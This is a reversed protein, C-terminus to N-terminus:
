QSPHLPKLNSTDKVWVRRVHLIHHARLLALLHCIPNLETNLPNFANMLAHHGFAQELRLILLRETHGPIMTQLPSVNYVEASEIYLIKNKDAAQFLSM